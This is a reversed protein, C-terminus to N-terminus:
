QSAPEIVALIGDNENPNSDNDVNRFVLVIQGNAMVVIGAMKKYQDLIGIDIKRVLEAVGDKAYVVNIHDRDPDGVLYYTVGTGVEDAIAYVGGPQLFGLQGADFQQVSDDGPSCPGDFFGNPGAHHTYITNSVADATVLYLGDAGEFLDVGEPDISGYFTTHFANIEVLNGDQDLEASIIRRRVDDTIIITGDNAIAVDTPETSINNVITSTSTQVQRSELDFIWINNIAGRENVESDSVIVSHPGYLDLGSPDPSPNEWLSTAVSFVLTSTIVPVNQLKRTVEPALPYLPQNAPEIDPPDNVSLPAM